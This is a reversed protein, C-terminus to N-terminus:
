LHLRRWDTGQPVIIYGEQPEGVLEAKGLLHFYGVLAATVADIEHPTMKRTKVDGKLGMRVLITQVQGWDKTPMKLAKRASAPHVEIVPFGGASLARTLNVARRTLAEMRPFRPPFVPYGRKLMERDARRLVGSTPLSLPADMAILAPSLEISRSLIEEDSYLHSANVAKNKWLAWGTPNASAGALDIGIIIKETLNLM